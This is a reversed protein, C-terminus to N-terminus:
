YGLVVGRYGLMGPKLGNEACRGEYVVDSKSMRDLAHSEGKRINLCWYRLAELVTFKWRRRPREELHYAVM